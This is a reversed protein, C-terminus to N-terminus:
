VEIVIKVKDPTTGAAIAIEVRCRAVIAQLSKPPVAAAAERLVDPPCELLTALMQLRKAKPRSRGQEWYCVTTMSVGLREAIDSQTLKNTKRFHALRAALSNMSDAAPDAVSLAFDEGLPTTGPTSSSLSANRM